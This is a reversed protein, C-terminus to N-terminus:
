PATVPDVVIEVREAARETETDLDADLPTDILLSASRHGSDVQDGLVDGPMRGVLVSHATAPADAELVGFVPWRNDRSPWAVEIGDATVDALAGHPHPLFHQRSRRRPEPYATPVGLALDLLVPEVPQGTALEWLFTIADGPLRAAVEMLTVGGDEGLRYEAHTIGDRVGVKRLVERNAELLADEESAPVDAPCTHSLETFYDSVHENSEKANVGSWLIEGGQVLAEVSFERGRARAEVLAIEHEEIASLAAVLEDHTSVSRVGSSYFRGAPKVVAPFREEPLRFDSRQKAPVAEFYPSFEPVAFRQLLKNRCVSAAKAGAGPLGLTDALVGAPEVFPEGVSMVGQVAYRRLLPQVAPTVSAVSAEPVQVVETLTSLPHTEDTRARELLEMDTQASVVVLAALGRRRTETFLRAQRALVVLDGMFLVAQPHHAM